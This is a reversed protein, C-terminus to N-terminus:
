NEISNLYNKLSIFSSNFILDLNQSLYIPFSKVSLTSVFSWTQSWSFCSFIDWDPKAFCLFEKKHSNYFSIKNGAYFCTMSEKNDTVNIKVKFTKSAKESELLWHIEILLLDISWSPKYM